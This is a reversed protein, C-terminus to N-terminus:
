KSYTLDDLYIEVHHGGTQLDFIGFRDLLAGQERHDPNVDLHHRQDDFSVTIRGNGEAEEPQYHISWAHVQQDAKLIPRQRPTAEFTPAHFSGRSSSYAPRFVHGLRSPGEILIGVLDKQPEVHQAVTHQQKGQGNFWGVFVGSDAGASRLVIKGGAYFEDDWTLPGVKDAYYAPASDRFVIGGIEGRNGGAFNTDSYGFNHFPRIVQQRYRAPNNDRIWGPDGGFSEAQGDIVLDDFYAEMFSGPTQQNWIGFRDFSAGQLRHGALLPLEWSQGDCRFTILGKGGAGEPDYDLQWRHVTGDAECPPTPTTQYRIGEFAGGGHTGWERTGYEYFIWYNGGNGDLRMALSNPTRWGQSKDHNFWGILLGSGGGAQTVAFTGSASFRDELTKAAIPKAFYARQHDRHVLGGIEGPRTGGAFRSPQYGFDQRVLQREAPLLRSRFSEWDPDVNFDAQKTGPVKVQETLCDAVSLLVVATCIATVRWFRVCCNMKLEWVLRVGTWLFRSKGSQLVGFNVCFVGEDAFFGLAASQGGAFLVHHWTQM